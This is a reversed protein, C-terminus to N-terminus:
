IADDTEIAPRQELLGTARAWIGHSRLSEAAARADYAQDWIGFMGSGSGTMVAVRAGLACLDRKLEKLEPLVQTAALELDNHLLAQMSRDRDTSARVMSVGHKTTLSDDFRGYVQATSLGVGPFAVVIARAVRRLDGSSLPELIEGIGRMRAPTGYLFFPVDAGLELAWERMQVPEAQRPPAIASLTTLTAAADSSGGGFGGGVPIRKALTISLDARLSTKACYLKAAKWVLNRCDAPASGHPLCELNIRPESERPSGVSIRLVDYIGVAGVVSDLLHFGDSRRGVIRLGFNLKAPAFVTARRVGSPENDFLPKPV